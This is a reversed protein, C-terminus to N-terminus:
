ETIKGQRDPSRDPHRQSQWAECRPCMGQPNNFSFVDSHGVFPQGIRSFLLRLLAHIDTATGVTSRANSGIRKQNILIAASLHEISEVDPEGYGPLRHRIFSSYTENMQRQSEAAITDFVLASKGSGSVGTFVTIRKKPIDLSVSRLNKNKAGIVRIVNNPNSANSKDSILSPSMSSKTNSNMDSKKGSNMDSSM